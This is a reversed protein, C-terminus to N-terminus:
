ALIESQPAFRRRWGSRQAFSFSYLQSPVDCACGPYTNDRWTGGLSDAKEFVVFDSSGKELLKIAMCIGACGAGLIAISPAATDPRRRDM